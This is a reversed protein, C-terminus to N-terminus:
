ITVFSLSRVQSVVLNWQVLCHSSFFSAQSPVRPEFNLREKLKFTKWTVADQVQSGLTVRFKDGLGCLAETVVVDVFERVSGQKPHM